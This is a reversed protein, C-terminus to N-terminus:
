CILKILTMKINSFIIIDLINGCWHKLFIMWHMDYKLNINKEM